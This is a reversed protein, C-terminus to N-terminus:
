IMWADPLLYPSIPASIPVHYTQVQPLIPNTQRLPMLLGHGSLLPVSSQFEAPVPEVLDM